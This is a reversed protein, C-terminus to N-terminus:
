SRVGIIWVILLILFILGYLIYHQTRGSQIWSFVRLFGQLTQVLPRVLFREVLDESHSEFSATEPFLGDPQQLHKQVPLAKGILEQFSSAYSSATYQMRPTAAQYGCDWTKFQAIKKRRLIMTRLLIFFLTLGGFLWLVRSLQLYIHELQAYVDADAAFQFVAPKMVPLVLPAALGTFIILGALFFMPLLFSASVEPLPHAPTSRSEGQFVVGFVKTFCIVAMVGIFALGSMGTIATLDLLAHGTTVGKALGIYIAFESIFGNFLPLGSIAMSALFFLASTFPMTHMLGGLKELSLTHTNAYVAGAGYFLLSKFTFHNFVHLLAGLYGALTLFPLHHVMGIMGLGIGMGIIGINEISHFALLRKLDHQGIANMVGLLGAFLGGSFVLYALWDAPLGLSLIIRLMGYIGTKIMIGSMMASVGSPAAPHALPLWTHMPLFGAKTGFGLFLLIFIITAASSNTARITHLAAFNPEGSLWAAWAFGIILFAVGIQMATFYYLAARRVHEKDNEFSVLFFSSLSMIEWVILFLLMNQVLTVLMMAVILLSMFVYYGGLSYQPKLAYMQMYSHSYVAALLGGISIILIFFATLPDLLLLATGVPGAFHLSVTLPAGGLLVRSVVPLICLQALASAGILLVARKPSRVLAAAVGGAIILGMGIFLGNM